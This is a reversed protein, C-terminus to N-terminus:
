AVLVIPGPKPELPTKAAPPDIKVPTDAPVPPESSKPEQQTAIPAPAERAEAPASAPAEFETPELKQPKTQPKYEQAILAADFLAQPLVSPDKGPPRDGPRAKNGDSLKRGFANDRKPDPTTASVSEVPRTPESRRPALHAAHTISITIPEPAIRASM